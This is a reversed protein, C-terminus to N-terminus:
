SFFILIGLKESISFPQIYSILEKTNNSSTKYIKISIQFSLTEKYFQVIVSIM